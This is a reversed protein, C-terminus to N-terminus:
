ECTVESIPLSDDQGSTTTFLTFKDIGHGNSRGSIEMTYTKATDFRVFIPHADFDSTNSAWDWAEATNMYIKFWNDSGAGVPTPTKGSGRPFVTSMGKRGFFDDADPFRLWSDNHETANTGITIRSKWVFRYTGPTNIKIKFTLLGLGPTGFSNAGEWVLYGDGTFDSISNRLAWGTNDINASEAEVIILGDQEVVLPAQGNTCKLVTGMDDGGNQDNEADELAKLVADLEEQSVERVLVTEDDDSCSITLM